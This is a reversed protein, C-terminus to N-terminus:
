SPRNVAASTCNKRTVGLARTGVDTTSPWGDQRQDPEHHLCEHCRSTERVSDIPGTRQEKRHSVVFRPTGPRSASQDIRADRLDGVQEVSAADRCRTIRPHSCIGVSWNMHQLGCRGTTVVGDHGALTSASCTVLTAPATASAQM